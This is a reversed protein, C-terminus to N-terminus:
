NKLTINHTLFIGATVLDVIIWAEKMLHISIIPNFMIAVIIFVFTWNKDKKEHSEFGLYLALGTIIWRLVQYYFYPLPFVAILLLIMAITQLNFIKKMIMQKTSFPILFIKQIRKEM